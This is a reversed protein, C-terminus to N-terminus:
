LKLAKGGGGRFDWCWWFTVNGIKRNQTCYVLLLTYFEPLVQGRWLDLAKKFCKHQKWVLKSSALTGCQHHYKHLQALTVQWEPIVLQCAADQWYILLKVTKGVAASRLCKFEIYGPLSVAKRYAWLATGSHWSVTLQMWLSFCCFKLGCAPIFAANSYQWYLVVRPMFLPMIVPSSQKFIHSIKHKKFFFLKQVSCTKCSFVSMDPM